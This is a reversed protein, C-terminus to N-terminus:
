AGGGGFARLSQEVPDRFRYRVGVTVEKHLFVIGLTELSKLVVFRWGNGCSNPQYRINIGRIDNRRGEM